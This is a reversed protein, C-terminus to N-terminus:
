TGSARPDEYLHDELRESWDDPGELRLGRATRLFSSKAPAEETEADEITLRVRTNPKLAVPRDPRLFEGDFTAYLTESM